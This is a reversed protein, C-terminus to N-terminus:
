CDVHGPKYPLRPDPRGKGVKRGVSLERAPANIAAVVYRRKRSRGFKGKRQGDEGVGDKILSANGGLGGGRGEGRWVLVCVRRAVAGM